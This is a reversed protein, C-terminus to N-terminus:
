LDRVHHHIIDPPVAFQADAQNDGPINVAMYDGTTM